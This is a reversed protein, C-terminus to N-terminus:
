EEYEGDFEEDEFWLPESDLAKIKESYEKQIARSQSDMTPRFYESMLDANM